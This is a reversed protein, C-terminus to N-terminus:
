SSAFQFSHREHVNYTEVGKSVVYLLFEYNNIRYIWRTVHHKDGANNAERRNRDLSM